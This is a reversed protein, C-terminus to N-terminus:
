QRATRNAVQIQVEAWRQAAAGAIFESDDPNFRQMEREATEKSRRAGELDIEDAYEASDALVTMINNLVEAYGGSVALFYRTTGQRYSL